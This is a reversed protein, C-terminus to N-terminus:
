SPVMGRLDRATTIARKGDNGRALRRRRMTVRAGVLRNDSAARDEIRKVGLSFRHWERATRCPVDWSAHRACDGTDAFNLALEVKVGLLLEIELRELPHKARAVDRYSRHGVLRELPGFDTGKGLHRSCKVIAIAAGVARNADELRLSFRRRVGM